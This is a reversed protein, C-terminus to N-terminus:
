RCGRCRRRPIRRRAGAGGGRTHTRRSLSDHGVAVGPLPYARLDLRRGGTVRPQGVHRPAGAAVDAAHRDLQEAVVQREEGVGRGRAALGVGGLEVRDAQEAPSRGLQPHRRATGHLQVQRRGAPQPLLQGRDDPRAVALGDSGGGGRHQVHDVLGDGAQGLAVGVGAPLHHPPLLRQPALEDVVQQAAVGVDAPEHLPGLREAQVHGPGCWTASAAGVPRSLSASAAILERSRATTCQAPSRSTRTAVLSPQITTTVGASVSTGPGRVPGFVSPSRM